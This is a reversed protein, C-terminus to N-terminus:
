HFISYQFHFIDRTEATIKVREDITHGTVYVIGKEDCVLPIDRCFRPVKRDTLYDSLLKRGGLGFPSFIDGPGPTRVRLQGSLKGADVYAEGPAAPLQAQTVRTVLLGGRPTQCERGQVLPLDYAVPNPPRGFCLRENETWACIEGRLAIVTGSQATLLADLREVADASVRDAQEALLAMLVRKRIPAPLQSLKSRDEGCAARAQGAVESLYAEDEGLFGAMRCLHEVAKPNERVLEPLVRLRLRNRQACPLANTSDTVFPQDRKALWTLIEAKSVGLLPRILDGDAQRMGTLGNLGCGRIAHQLITEAQDERHHAVAIRDFGHRAAVQRLFAYRLERAAAELSTGQRRAYAPADVATVHYPVQLSECLRRVFDEDREAEGGRIGHNVHAAGVLAIRGERWLRDLELLLATSDAGGSIAALVRSKPTLRCASYAQADLLCM